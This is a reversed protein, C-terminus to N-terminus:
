MLFKSDSRAREERVKESNDEKPEKSGKARRHRTPKPPSADGRADDPKVDQLLFIAPVV